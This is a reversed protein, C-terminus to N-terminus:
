AEKFPSFHPWGGSQNTWLTAQNTANGEPLLGGNGPEPSVILSPVQVSVPMTSYFSMLVSLCATQDVRNGEPLLYSEM